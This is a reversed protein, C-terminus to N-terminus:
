VGSEIMDRSINLVPWSGDLAMRLESLRQMCDACYSDLHERVIAKENERAINHITLYNVLENLSVDCKDTVM